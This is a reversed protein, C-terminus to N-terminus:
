HDFVRRLKGPSELYEGLRDHTDFIVLSPFTAASKQVQISSMLIIAKESSSPHNTPLLIEVYQVCRFIWSAVRFLLIVLLFVSVHSPYIIVDQCLSNNVQATSTFHFFICCTSHSLASACLPSSKFWLLNYFTLLNKTQTQIVYGNM